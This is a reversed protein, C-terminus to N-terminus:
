MRTVKVGDHGKVGGHGKGEGQLQQQCLTHPLFVLTVRPPGIEVVRVRLLGNPNDWLFQLLDLLLYSILLQVFHLVHLPRSLLLPPPIHIPPRAMWLWVWEGLGYEQSLTQTATNSHVATQLNTTLSYFAFTFTTTVICVFSALGGM